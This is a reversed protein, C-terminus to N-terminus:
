RDFDALTQDIAVRSMAAIAPNTHRYYALAVLAVSFAWGRGRFWTAEDAAVADRFAARSAGTLLTWAVILDVAPDGVGMLGFDIVASLRGDTALLNGAHIDGHVWVPARDWEPLALTANWLTTAADADIEDRLAEIGDRTFSDRKALAVGRYSNHSGSRPGDTIDVQQLARVFGALSAAADVLSDLRDTSAAAGDLWRCVTWNWPYGEEPTGAALPVPVPLPLQPALVPLWRQEKTAHGIAWSVSPLRVVMDVGLRYLANDTGASEFREIPLSTWQPFQSAVLRRVLAVDIHPREVPVADPM